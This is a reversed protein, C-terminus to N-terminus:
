EKKYLAILYEIGKLIQVDAKSLGTFDPQEWPPAPLEADSGSSYVKGEWNEPYVHEKKNNEAILRSSLALRLGVKGYCEEYQDQKLPDTFLWEAPDHTQFYAQLEMHVVPYPEKRNRYLKAM